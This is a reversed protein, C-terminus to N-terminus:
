IYNKVITEGLPNNIYTNCPYYSNHINYFGIITEGYILRLIYMKDDSNITRNDYSYVYEDLIIKNINSKNHYQSLEKKINDLLILSSQNNNIHYIYRQTIKEFFSDMNNDIIIGTINTYKAMFNLHITYNYISKDALILHFILKIGESYKTGCTIHNFKIGCPESPLDITKHYSTKQMIINYIYILIYKYLNMNIKAYIILLKM